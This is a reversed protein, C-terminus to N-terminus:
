KKFKKVDQYISKGVIYTTTLFALYFLGRVIPTSKHFGDRRKEPKDIYGLLYEKRYKAYLLALIGVLRPGYKSYQGNKIDKLTMYLTSAGILFIPTTLTFWEVSNVQARYVCRWKEKEEDNMTETAETSPPKIGFQSRHQAVYRFADAVVLGNALIGLAPWAMERVIEPVENQSM